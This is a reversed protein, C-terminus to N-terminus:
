VEGDKEESDTLRKEMVLAVRGPRDPEPEFGVRDMIQGIFHTGLGGPKIDDLDRPRVNPVDEAGCFDGIRFRLLEPGIEARVRIANDQFADRRHKVINSCSEDLALILMNADDGLDKLVSQFFARIVKLYRADAPVTVAYPRGRM